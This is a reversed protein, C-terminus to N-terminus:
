KMSLAHFLNIKGPGVDIDEKTRDIENGSKDFYAVELSHKGVPLVFEGVQANANMYRSIRLDAGESAVSAVTGILSVLMNKQGNKDKSLMETAITKGIVRMITKIYIMPMKKRFSQIAIKEIDEIQELKGMEKGDVFVKTSSIKSERKTMIPLQAYAVWDGAKRWPIMAFGSLITQDDGTVLKSSTGITIYDGSAMMIIDFSQKIPALGQLSVINVPVSTTKSSSPTSTIKPMPFSYLESQRQFADKMEKYSIRAEDENGIDRQLVVSIYRALASNNFYENTKPIDIEKNATMAQQQYKAYKQNLLGLKNNLMRIEVLADDGKKLKTYALAKYINAYVDEFDEGSYDIQRDNLLISAAQQSISTTYYQKILSEAVGFTEISQQYSKSAFNLEGYELLAVVKDKSGYLEEQKEKVTAAAQEYEGQEVKKDIDEYIKQTSSCSAFLLALIVVCLIKISLKKSIERINM